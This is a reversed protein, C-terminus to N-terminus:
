IFSNMQELNANNYSTLKLKKFYKEIYFYYREKSPAGKKLDSFKLINFNFKFKTQFYLDLFQLHSQGFLSQIIFRKLELEFQDVFVIMFQTFFNQRGIFFEMLCFPSFLKLPFSCKVM